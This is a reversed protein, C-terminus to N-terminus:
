TGSPSSTTATSPCRRTRSPAPTSRGRSAPAPSEAAWRSPEVGAVEFGPREAVSLFTGVHCGVDLLTGAPMFRRIHELSEGFTEIRGQEEELYRTDAVASYNDQVSQHHPRPNMYVLGCSRCDVIRGHEGFASSTSTYHVQPDVRAGQLRDELRM